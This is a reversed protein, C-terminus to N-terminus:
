KINLEEFIEELIEELIEIQELAEISATSREEALGSEDGNWNSDIGNLQLKLQKLYDM